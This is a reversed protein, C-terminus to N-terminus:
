YTTNFFGFIRCYGKFVLNTGTAGTGVEFIIPAALDVMVIPKLAITQNGVANKGLAFHATTPNSQSSLMNVHSGDNGAKTTPAASIAGSVQSTDWHSGTVGFAFGPFTSLSTGALVCTYTGPTTLDIEPTIFSVLVGTPPTSTAGTSTAPLVVAAIVTANRSYATADLITGIAVAITPPVNTARGAVSASVYLTQGALPTLGTELLVSQKPSAAVVNPFGSVGVSGSDVVGVLGQLNASSDAQARRVANTASIRVLMGRTFAATDANQPTGYVFNTPM